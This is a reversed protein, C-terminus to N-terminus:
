VQLLCYIMYSDYINVHLRSLFFMVQIVRLEEAKDGSFDIINVTGNDTCLVIFNSNPSFCFEEVKHFFIIHDNILLKMEYGITNNLKHKGM